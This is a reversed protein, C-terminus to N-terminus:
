DFLPFGSTLERRMHSYLAIGSGDFTDAVDRWRDFRNPSNLRGVHIHIGRAKASEAAAMAMQGDKFKNTGGIFLAAIRFWPVTTRDLGDQAVFALPWGDLRPAWVDFLARTSEHDAVVDPCAVFLCGARDKSERNLRSRFASVDLGSFAGNDIAWPRGEERARNRFGTLPTLLQGVPIGLERECEALQHSTDLLAIPM